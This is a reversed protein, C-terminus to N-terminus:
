FPIDDDFDSSENKGKTLSFLTEHDDIWTWSDDELVIAPYEDGDHDTQKSVRLFGRRQLRRLALAFGVATLGSSEADRKLHFTGVPDGAVVTEAAAIALVLIEIQSLGEQPAVPENEMLQRTAVNKRILARARNMIEEGLAEFDSSSESGYRIITRHQIDFPFRGKTREDSCVLIVSRGAAFAYGLEYWVNPNDTTIDALCITASRISEEISDIPVEVSPDRDVRYADLGAQELAPKYIDDYRKDFKSDFPQIVFCTSM